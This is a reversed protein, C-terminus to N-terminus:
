LPYPIANTRVCLIQYQEKHHFCILAGLTGLLNPYRHRKGRHNELKNRACCCNRKVVVFAHLESDVQESISEAAASRSYFGAASAFM